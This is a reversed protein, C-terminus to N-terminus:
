CKSVEMEIISVVVKFGDLEREITAQKQYLIENDIYNNTVTEIYKIEENDDSYFSITQELIKDVDNRASEFNNFVKYLKPAHPQELMEYCDAGNDIYFKQLILCYVKM